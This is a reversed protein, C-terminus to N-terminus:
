QGRALKIIDVKLKIFERMNKAVNCTAQVMRHDCRQEPMQEAIDKMLGHLHLISDDLLNKSGSEVTRSTPLPAVLALLQTECEEDEESETSTDNETEPMGSEGSEALAKERLEEENWGHKPYSPSVGARRLATESGEKRMTQSETNMM